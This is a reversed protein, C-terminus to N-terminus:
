SLDMQIAMEIVEAEAAREMEKAISHLSFSSLDNSSPHRKEFGSINLSAGKELNCHDVLSLKTFAYHLQVTHRPWTDPYQSQSLQEIHIYSYAIYM